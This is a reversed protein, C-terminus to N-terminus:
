ASLLSIVEPDTPSVAPDLYCLLKGDESVLYKAFNWSPEQDNWGNRSRDSLWQYIENQGETKLVKSKQALLFGVQYHAACFQAIEEDSGPEQGKFENSPFGLVVLQNSFREQLQQLAAYQATYGCFSATNVLLVKKGRFESLPVRTGDGKTLTLSHFPRPPVQASDPRLIRNKRRLRQVRILLPYIQQLIQQRMSM